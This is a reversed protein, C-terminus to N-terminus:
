KKEEKKKPDILEVLATLRKTKEEDAGKLAAKVIELVLPKEKKSVEVIFTPAKLSGQDHLKILEEVGKRIGEDSVALGGERYGVITDIGMKLNAATADAKANTKPVDKKEDKGPADKKPDIKALLADIAKAREEEADKRLVKLVRIATTKDKKGIDIIVKPAELSGKQQLKLLEKFGNEFGEDSIPIGGDKYSLLTELGMKLAGVQADAKENTKEQGRCTGLVLTALIVLATIRPFFSTM